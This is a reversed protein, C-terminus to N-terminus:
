DLIAKRINRDGPKNTTILMYAYQCKLFVLTLKAYQCYFSNKRTLKPPSFVACFVLACCAVGKSTLSFSNILEQSAGRASDWFQPKGCSGPLVWTCAPSGLASPHHQSGASVWKSLSSGMDCLSRGLGSGGWMVALCVCFDKPHFLGCQPSESLLSEYVSISDEAWRNSMCQLSAKLFVELGHLLTCTLTNFTDTTWHAGVLLAWDKVGHWQEARVGLVRDQKKGM